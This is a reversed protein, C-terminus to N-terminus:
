YSSCMPMLRRTPFGVGVTVGFSNLNSMDGYKFPIINYSAGVSIGASGSKRFPVFVGIEPQAQFAFKNRSDAFEGLYQRYLVMDGGVGAGIFPQIKNMPLFNYQARLLLPVTQVSNSIVASIDSGDPLKYVQRPYKQYFDQFGTGFGISVKDNIGYMIRLDVGRYSADSVFDKFSSLPFGAAYNVFVKTVGQQAYSGTAMFIIAIITLSIRIKKM